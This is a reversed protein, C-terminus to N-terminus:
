QRQNVKIEPGFGSGQETRSVIGRYKKTYQQDANGKETM